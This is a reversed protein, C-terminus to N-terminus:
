LAGEESDSEKNGTEKKSKGMGPANKMSKPKIQVDASNVIIRDENLHMSISNGKLVNGKQWVQPSGELLIEQTNDFYTAKEATANKDEQNIRVNGLAVIKEIKKDKQNLYIDMRDALLTTDSRIAKVNDYFIILDKKNYAEMRDSTIKIPIDKDSGKGLMDMISNKEETRGTLTFLMILVTFGAISIRKLNTMDEDM